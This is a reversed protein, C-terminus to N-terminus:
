ARTDPRNRRRVGALTPCTATSTTPKSCRRDLLCKVHDDAASYYVLAGERRGTVLAALLLKALHQSM